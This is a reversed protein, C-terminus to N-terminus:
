PLSIRECTIAFGNLSDTRFFFVRIKKGGVCDSEYYDGSGENASFICVKRM